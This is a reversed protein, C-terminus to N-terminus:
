GHATEKVGVEKALVEAIATQFPNPMNRRTLEANLSGLLGVGPDQPDFTSQLVVDIAQPGSLDELINQDLPVFARAHSGAAVIDEYSLELAHSIVHADSAYALGHHGNLVIDVMDDAQRRDEAIAAILADRVQGSLFRPNDAKGDELLVAIQVQLHGYRPTGPEPAAKGLAAITAALVLDRAANHDLNM